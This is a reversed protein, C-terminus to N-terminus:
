REGMLMERKGGTEQSVQVGTEKGGSVKRGDGESGDGESDERDGESMDGGGVGMEKEGTTKGRENGDRYM